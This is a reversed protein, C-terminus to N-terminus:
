KKNVKRGYRNNKKKKQGNKKTVNPKFEFSSLAVNPDDLM